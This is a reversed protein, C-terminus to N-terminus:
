PVATADEDVLAILFGDHGKSGVTQIATASLRPENSLVELMARAGQVRADQNRASTIAGARVVNDVVILSGPRSLRLAWVLYHPDNPIDADIFILDFPGLGEAEIIPLTDLAIGIRVDVCHALGARAINERAVAAHRPDAELSILRGDGPLARALWITSYGGLTGIELIARARCARALLQLLKGQLPSTDQRPLKAASNAALAADFCPDTQVLLGTLYQEVAHWNQGLLRAGGARLLRALRQTKQTLRLPEQNLLFPEGNM